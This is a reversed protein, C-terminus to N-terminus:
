KTAIAQVVHSQGNHKFGEHIVRETEHLLTFSLKPLENLLIEQTVMLDPNGPGGTKFELQKPTYSEALYVGNPKLALEIRKHLAQRIGGPLHCFISVIGDWEHSGLDFQELDAKIFKIDVGHDNALAQAKILAVESLDVATVDFGKQALFVSNRGEGDALCLIKGNAPLIHVNNALFDNASKGYVYDENNYIDDWM